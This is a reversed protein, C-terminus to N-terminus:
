PLLAFGPLLKTSPNRRSIIDFQERYASRLNDEYKPAGPKVHQLPPKPGKSAQYVKGEPTNLWSVWCKRHFKTPRKTDFTIRGCRLCHWMRYTRPLNAEDKWAEVILGIAIKRRATEDRHPNKPCRATVGSARKQIEAQYIAYRPDTVSMATVLAKLRNDTSARATAAAGADVFNPSVNRIHKSLLIRRSLRSKNKQAPNDSTQIAAKLRMDTLITVMAAGACRGCRLVGRSEDIFAPQRRKFPRGARQQREQHDGRFPRRKKYRNQLARIESPLLRFERRCTKAWRQTHHDNFGRCKFPKAEAKPGHPAHRPCFAVHFRCNGQKYTRSIGPPCYACPLNILLKRSRPNGPLLKEGGCGCPCPDGISELWLGKIVESVEVGLAEALKPIHQWMPRQPGRGWEVVQSLAVGLRQALLLVTPYGARIRAAHLWSDPNQLKRGAM